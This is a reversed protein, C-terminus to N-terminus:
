VSIGGWPRFPAMSGPPLNGARPALLIAGDVGGGTVYDASGAPPRPDVRSGSPDLTVVAPIVQLLDGHNSVASGLPLHLLPRCGAVPCGSLLRLAPLVLEYLGVIASLPNGPLGFIPQHAASKAFLQPRGPKMAVGRYLITTGAEALAQPVYDYRGASIGGSVIVADSEEL